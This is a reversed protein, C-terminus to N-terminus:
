KAIDVSSVARVLYGSWDTLEFNNVQPVSCIHSTWGGNVWAAVEVIEVPTGSLPGCLNHAKLNYLSSMPVGISNWGAIVHSYDYNTIPDGTFSMTFSSNSRVMYGVREKLIKKKYKNLKECSFENWSFDGASSKESISVIPYSNCLEQISVRQSVPLSIFTRGTEIPVDVTTLAMIPSAAIMSVIFTFLGLILVTLKM